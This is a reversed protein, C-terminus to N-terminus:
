HQACRPTLSLPQAGHQVGCVAVSDWRVCGWAGRSQGAAEAVAADFKVRAGEKRQLGLRVLASYGGMM